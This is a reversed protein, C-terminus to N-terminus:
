QRNPAHKPLTGHRINDIDDMSRIHVKAGDPGSPFICFVKGGAVWSRELRKEKVLVRAHYHLTQRFRTLDENIYVNGLTKRAALVRQRAKLNTFKVIVSRTYGPKPRGLRHAVDIDEPTIAITHTEALSILKAEVNETPDGEDGIIGNVRLCSRRSYQEQEDLALKLDSVESALKNNRETEDALLKRTVSLEEQLPKILQTILESLDDKLKNRVRDAIDDREDETLIFRTTAGTSKTVTTFATIPPQQSTGARATDMVRSDSLETASM